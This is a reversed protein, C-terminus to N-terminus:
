VEKEENQRGAFLILLVGGVGLVAIFWPHMTYDFVTAANYIASLIFLGASWALVTLIMLKGNGLRGYLLLFGTFIIALVIFYGFAYADGYIIFYIFEYMMSSTLSVITLVELFFKLNMEGKVHKYIIMLATLALATYFIGSGSPYALVALPDNLFIDLNMIIKIMFIFILLNVFQSFLDELLPKKDGHTDMLTYIIGGSLASIALIAVSILTETIVM